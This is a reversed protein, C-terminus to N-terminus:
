FYFHSNLFNSCKYTLNLVKLLLYFHYFLNGSNKLFVVIVVCLNAKDESTLSAFRKIINM